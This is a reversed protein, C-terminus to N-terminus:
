PTGGSFYTNYIKLYTGDAEMGLLAKNIKSILVEDGKNAMIGYGYGVRMPKSLPQYNNESNIFWFAATAQDLLLIDVDGSQLATLMDAHFDYSKIHVQDKYKQKIIDLFVSSNAVGITKGPIDNLSHINSQYRVMYQGFSQLYPLSFLFYMEREQTINISGVALNIENRELGNFMEGYAFPKFECQVSIRRCIESTLDVDFGTYHEKDTAMVFPPIYRPAGITLTKAQAFSATFVIAIIIALRM